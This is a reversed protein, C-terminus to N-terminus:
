RHIATVLHPEWAKYYDDRGDIAGGCTPDIVLGKGGSTGVKLFTSDCNAYNLDVRTSRIISNFRGESAFGWHRQHSILNKGSKDYGNNYWFAFCGNYISVTHEEMRFGTAFHDSYCIDYYNGESLDWFGCSSEFTGTYLPHLNRLVNNGETLKIGTNIRFIRMNNLTNYSSEVLVGISDKTNTGTIVVNDVDTYDAQINIGIHSEKISFNYLLVQANGEVSIASCKQKCNFQGGKIYCENGNEFTTSKADNSSAKFRILPDEKKGSWTESPAFQAYTSLLFSVSKDPDTPLELTKGLYYIGDPFYFTKNPFRNVLAQLTTSMDSSRGIHETVVVYGEIDADAPKTDSIKDPILYEGAFMPVLTFKGLAEAETMIAGEPLESKTITVTEIYSQAVKGGAEIDKCLRVVSVKGDEGKDVKTGGIGGVNDCSTLNLAVGIVISLCLILCIVRKLTTKTAM